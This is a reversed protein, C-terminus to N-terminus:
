PERQLALKKMEDLVKGEAEKISLLLIHTQIERLASVVNLYRDVLEKEQKSINLLGFTRFSNKIKKRARFNYNVIKEKIKSEKFEALEFKKLVMDPLLKNLLAVSAIVLSGGYFFYISIGFKEIEMSNNERLSLGVGWGIFFILSLWICALVLGLALIRRQIDKIINNAQPAAKKLESVISQINKKDIPKEIVSFDIFHEEEVIERMRKRNNHFQLSTQGIGLAASVGSLATVILSFTIPDM